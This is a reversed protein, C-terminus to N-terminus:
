KPSAPRTASAAAPAVSPLRGCSRSPRRRPAAIYSADPPEPLADVSPYGIGGIESLDSPGALDPRHLRRFAAQIPAALGKGGIFAVHRPKLLRRLNALRRAHLTESVPVNM